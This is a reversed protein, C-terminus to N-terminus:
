SEIRDAPAYARWSASVSIFLIHAYFFVPLIKLNQRDKEDTFLKADIIEKARSRISNMRRIWEM